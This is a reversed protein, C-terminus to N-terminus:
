ALFHVRLWCRMSTFQEAVSLLRGLPINHSRSRLFLRRRELVLERVDEPERTSIDDASLIAVAECCEEPEPPIGILGANVFAKRESFFILGPAPTSSMQQCTVMLTRRALSLFTVTEVLGIFAADHDQTWFFKRPFLAHLVEMVHVIGWTFHVRDLGTTSDVPIYCWAWEESKPGRYRSRQKMVECVNEWHGYTALDRTDTLVIMCDVMLFHNLIEMGEKFLYGWFDLTPDPDAVEIDHVKDSDACRATLPASAKAVYGATMCSPGEEDQIEKADSIAPEM